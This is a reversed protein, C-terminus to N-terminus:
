SADEGDIALAAKTADDERGCHECLCILGTDHAAMRLSLYPGGGNTMGTTSASIQRQETKKGRQLGEHCLVVSCSSCVPSAPVDM